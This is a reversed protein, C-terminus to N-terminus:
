DPVVLLLAHRVRTVKRRGRDLSPWTNLAGSLGCEQRSDAIFLEPHHHTVCVQRLGSM